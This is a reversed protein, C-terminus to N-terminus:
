AFPANLRGIVVVGAGVQYVTTSFIPGRRALTDEVLSRIYGAQAGQLVDFIERGTPDQGLREVCERGLYRFTPEGRWDAIVLNPLLGASIESVAGDWVALGSDSRSRDWFRLAQLFDPAAFMSRFSM